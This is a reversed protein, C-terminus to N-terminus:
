VTTTSVIESEQRTEKERKIIEQIHTRLESVPMHYKNEIEIFKRISEEMTLGLGKEIASLIELEGADTTYVLQVYRNRVLRGIGKGNTSSYIFIDSFAGKETYVSELLEYEFDSFVLQKKEKLRSISEKKQQLMFYFDSNEAIAEGTASGYLDNISQTVILAAGNYKRFRRYGGMMFEAVNGKNLLDWAEDVIMLKRRGRDGLYMEQQITMMVVLLVISQLIPHNKLEDLEIVVFPHNLNINNPKDFYHGYVGASTFPYLSDGLDRIRKDAHKNLSEALRDITSSSGYEQYTEKIVKELQAMEYDNVRDNPKCMSAFLATLSVIEEELSHIKTFPNLSIETELTFEVFEGGLKECLKKYSRGADIVWIQSDISLYSIILDNIFFSKGSGTKAFVCGSFGGQSDYLDLTMMQGRRSVFSMVPTRTGKWDSSIPMLTTANSSSMTRYRHLDTILGTDINLPLNNLFLEFNIYSDRNLSFGLTRYYSEMTGCYEKLDALSDAFVTFNLYSKVVWDSERQIYETMIDYNEKKIGIMPVIKQMPGLAQRTIWLADQALKNQEKDQPPIYTNQTIMFNFPLSRNRDTLHGIYYITDFISWEEPYMKVSLSAIYKEDIKLYNKEINVEAENRTLQNCILENKDWCGKGEKGIIPSIKDEEYNPYLIEGYTKILIEPKLTVPAVGLSKLMSEVTSKADVMKSYLAETYGGDKPYSKVVSMIIYVDKVRYDFNKLLSKNSGNEYFKCLENFLRTFVKTDSYKDADRLTTRQRIDRLGNTFYSIRNSCFLSISVFTDEPLAGEFMNKLARYTDDSPVCVPSFVFAFGLKGKCVYIGDTSYALPDLFSSLGHRNIERKTRKINYM